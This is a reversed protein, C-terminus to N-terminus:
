LDYLVASLVPNMFIALPLLQSCCGLATPYTFFYFLKSIIPPLYDLFSTLSFKLNLSVPQSSSFMIFMSGVVSIGDVDDGVLGARSCNNVHSLKKFFSRIM